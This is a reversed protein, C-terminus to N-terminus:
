ELSISIRALSNWKFRLSNRVHTLRGTTKLARANAFVEAHFLSYCVKTSVEPLSTKPQLQQIQTTQSPRSRSAGSSKMSIPWTALCATAANIRGEQGQYPEEQAKALALSTVALRPLSHPHLEQCQACCLWNPDRQYLVHLHANALSRSHYVFHIVSLLYNM